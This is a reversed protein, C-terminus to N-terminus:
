SYRGDREDKIVRIVAAVRLNIAATMRKADVATAMAPEDSILYRGDDEIDRWALRHVTIGRPGYLSSGQEVEVGGRCVTPSDRFRRSRAAAPVGRMDDIVSRNGFEEEAPGSGGAGVLPIESEAGPDCEPLQRVLADALGIPDCETVTFGETGSHMRGPLQRVVYGRGGRRVGMLRIRRADPHDASSGIVGSVSIRLDPQAIVELVPDFSRDPHERLRQAVAHRERLHDFHKATRTTYLFPTPLTQGTAQEWLTLFELSEFEWVDSM